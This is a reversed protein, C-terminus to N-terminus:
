RDAEGELWACFLEPLLHSACHLGGGGVLLDRAPVPYLECDPLGQQLAAAAVTDSPLDFHPYWVRQGVRLFNVYSAMLPMGATRPMVGSQLEIQRATQTSLRPPQPLPIPIIDLARGRVDRQNRLQEYWLQCRNFDPHNPDEPLSLLVRGPGGFVAINDIHGGTEDASLGGELWIVQKVGLVALQREIASKSWGLNHRRSLISGTAALATGQGDTQLAGGELVLECQQEPVAAHDLLVQRAAEERAWQNDIGAWGDFQFTAARWEREDTLWFPATDRVWIDAYPSQWLLVGPQQALEQLLPHSQHDPQHQVLVPIQHQSVSRALRGIVQQARVGAQPWIDPRWPWRLLVGAQGEWAAPWRWQNM